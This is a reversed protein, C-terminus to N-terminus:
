SFLVWAKQVTSWVGYSIPILVAAWALKVLIPHQESDSAVVTKAGNELSKEHSIKHEEALEADSMFYKDAVPKVLFNAIFGVVLMGALVLFIPAYIKDFPVGAELRTDHMYNVVVPGLIGATSWATLLRGHIAGVFQTGFMDALYAPITAFGGGYM